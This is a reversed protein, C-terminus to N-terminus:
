ISLAYKSFEISVCASCVTGKGTSTRYQSINARFNTSKKYKSHYFLNMTFCVASCIIRTVLMWPGGGTGALLPRRPSWSWFRHHAGSSHHIGRGSWRLIWSRPLSPGALEPPGWSPPSPDWHTLLTLASVIHNQPPSKVVVTIKLRRLINTSVATTSQGRLTLSVQIPDSPLHPTLSATCAYTSKDTCLFTITENETIHM